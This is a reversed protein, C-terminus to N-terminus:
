FHVRLGVVAQTRSDDDAFDHRADITLRVHPTLAVTAGAGVVGYTRDTDDLSVTADQASTAFTVDATRDGMAQDHRVGLMLRPEIWAEGELAFQRDIRWSAEASLQDADYPDVEVRLFSSGEEAYGDVDGNLIQVRGSLTQSWDGLEGRWGAGAWASLTSADTESQIRSLAGNLDVLRESELSHRAYAAGAHVFVGDGRWVLRAAGMMGSVDTGGAGGELDAQGQTFAAALGAELGGGLNQSYGFAGGTNQFDYGLSGGAAERQDSQGMARVWVVRDSVIDHADDSMAGLFADMAQGTVAAQGNFTSPRLTVLTAATSIENATEIILAPVGGNPVQIDAFTGTIGGTATLFTLGSGDTNNLSRLILTGDLAATGNINLLDIVPGTSFDIELTGGASQVYDGNLTVTAVGAGGPRLVGDNLVDGVLTGFADARGNGGIVLGQASGFTTTGTFVATGEEIYFEGFILDDFTVSGIGWKTVRSASSANLPTSFVGDSNVDIRLQANGDLTLLGTGAGQLDQLILMAGHDVRTGGTYTNARGLILGGSLVVVSGQGNIAGYITENAGPNNTFIRSGPSLNFVTNADGFQSAQALSLSANDSVTVTTVGSAAGGLIWFGDQAITILETGSIDGWYQNFDYFVIEDLGDGMEIGGEIYSTGALYILDDGDGTDIALGFSVVEGFLSFIQQGSGGMIAAHGPGQLQIRSYQDLDLISGIGQLVVGHGIVNSDHIWLRSGNGSVTFYTNTVQAGELVVFANAGEMLITSMDVQAGDQIHLFVGPINYAFSIQGNSLVSNPALIVTAGAFINSGNSITQGIVLGTCTVTDSGQMDTVTGAGSNVCQAQAADAMAIAAFSAGAMLALRAPSLRRIM